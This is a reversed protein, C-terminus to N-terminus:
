HAIWIALTHQSDGASVQSSSVPETNDLQGNGNFDVFSCVKYSGENLTDQSGGTSNFWSNITAILYVGSRTSVAQGSVTFLLQRQANSLGHMTAGCDMALNEIIGVYVVKTNASCDAVDASSCEVKISPISNAGNDEHGGGCATLAFILLIQVFIM